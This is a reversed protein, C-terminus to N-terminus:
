CSARIWLGSLLITGSFYSQNETQDTFSAAGWLMVSQTAGPPNGITFVTLEFIAYYSAGPPITPSTTFFQGNYFVGLLWGDLHNSGSWTLDITAAAVNYAVNGANVVDVYIYVTTPGENNASNMITQTVWPNMFWLVGGDGAGTIGTLKEAYGPPAPYPQSTEHHCYASGGNGGAAPENESDYTGQYAVKINGSSFASQSQGFTQTQFPWQFTFVNGRATVLTVTNEPYAPTPNPLTVTNPLWLLLCHNLEGANIFANAQGFAYNTTSSSPAIICPQPNPSSCGSGISGTSNIYIRVLQIGVSGLNSLSMNYMNCNTCGNWALNAVLGPSNVVLKEVLQQQNRYSAVSNVTQQYQFFQQSTMSIIAVAALLVTLVILGGILTSVARRCRLRTLLVKAM